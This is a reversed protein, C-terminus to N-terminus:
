ALGKQGFICLATETVLATAAVNVLMNGTLITNLTKRPTSLLQNILACRGPSKEQLRRLQIKSLSFLATESASFLASFVLLVALTLIHGVLNLEM